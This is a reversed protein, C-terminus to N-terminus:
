IERNKQCTLNIIKCESKILNSTIILLTTHAEIEKEKKISYMSRGHGKSIKEDFFRYHKGPQIM